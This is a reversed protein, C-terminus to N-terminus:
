ASARVVLREIDIRKRCDRVLTGFHACHDSMVHANFADPSEYHAQAFVRTPVHPDPAVVHYYCGPEDSTSAMFEEAAALWQAREEPTEFDISAMMVVEAM